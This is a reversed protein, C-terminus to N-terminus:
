RRSVITYWLIPKQWISRRKYLGRHVPLFLLFFIVPKCRLSNGLLFISQACPLLLQMLLNPTFNHLFM